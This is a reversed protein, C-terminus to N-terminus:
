LSFVCVCFWFCLFFFFVLLVLCVCFVVLARSLVFFCSVFLCVVYVWSYDVLFASCFSLLSRFHSFEILLLLFFIAFYPSFTWSSCSFFRYMFVFVVFICVWFGVPFLVLVYSSRLFFLAVSLVFFMTMFVYMESIFVWWGSFKNYYVLTPASTVVHFRSAIAGFDIVKYRCWGQTLHPCLIWLASWCPVLPPVRVGFDAFSSKV